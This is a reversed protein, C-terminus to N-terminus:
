HPLFPPQVQIQDISNTPGASRYLTLADLSRKNFVRVKGCLLV